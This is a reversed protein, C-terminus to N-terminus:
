QSEGSVDLARQQAEAWNFPAHLSQLYEEDIGTDITEIVGFANPTDAYALTRATALAALLDFETQPVLKPNHQFAVAEILPHPLGWIGLLYAGIQAQSTGLLEQEALHVPVARERAIKQAEELERPCEQALVLYGIEHLLGALMADEEMDTRRALSRAVAAVRVAQLRLREPDFGAPVADARWSSFIEASLVINRIAAFGLHTVAQEIKTIQRALRFFSSNVIQLVKAAIAPDAAILSAVARVSPTEGSITQALQSYTNPMAPLQRLRGVLARLRPEALLTHLQTSRNIINELQQTECPKSLYQHAITLLRSTLHQESYGSLVIRIIHPWREAVVGLLQAGDMSPMRMDTVIVDFPRMEIETLARAGSEVFVMDWQNRLSRLRGRLGDLLAPEDDVFLVRKM